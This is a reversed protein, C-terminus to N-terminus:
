NALELERRLGYSVWLRGVTAGSKEIIREEEKYLEFFVPGAKLRQLMTETIELQAKNVSVLENIDNTEFATDTVSLLVKTKQKPFHSLKISFAKKPLVPPLEPEIRFPNFEFEEKFKNGEEDTLVITHRGELQEVPKVLEYFVGTLPTSDAHFLEGDLEIRAPKELLVAPGEAGGQRLQVLITANPKGEEGWVRYDLYYLFHGSKSVEKQDPNACGALIVLSFLFTKVFVNVM